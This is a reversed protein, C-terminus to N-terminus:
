SGAGLQALYRRRLKRREKETFGGWVGFPEGATIAHALCEAQVDCGRCVRKAAEVEPGREKVPHMVRPGADRCNALAMWSPRDPDVYTATM